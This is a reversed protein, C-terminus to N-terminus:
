NEKWKWSFFHGLLSFFILYYPFVLLYFLHTFYFKERHKILNALWFFIFGAFYILFGSYNKQGFINFPLYVFFLFVVLTLLQYLRSSMRIKGYKRKQQQFFNHRDKVPITIVKAEPNYFIKWKTKRILNLLLKDNGAIHNKIKEYGGVQQFTEKRVMMNGGAASFPFGLGIAASFTAATMLQLFVGFSSNSATKYYGVIMGTQPEIYHNYSKLWNKPPLCDADTFLLFDFKAKEAAKQLAAKKGKFETDKVSLHIFESNEASRCFDKILSFSDDTSADDAIIIEFKNKPYDLQKLSSFLVPLNKAENRCAILISFTNEAPNKVKGNRFIGITLILFCVAALITIIIM